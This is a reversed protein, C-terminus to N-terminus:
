AWAQRMACCTVCARLHQPALVAPTLPPACGCIDQRGPQRGDQGHHDGACGRRVTHRSQRLRWRRLAHLSCRGLLLGWARGGHHFTHKVDDYRVETAEAPIVSTYQIINFDEIHAEELALDYSGTEWGDM